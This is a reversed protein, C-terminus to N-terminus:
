LRCGKDQISRIIPGFEESGQLMRGGSAMAKLHASSSWMIQELWDAILLHLLLLRNFQGRSETEAMLFVHGAVSMLNHACESRGEYFSERHELFM